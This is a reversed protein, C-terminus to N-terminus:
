TLIAKWTNVKYYGTIRDKWVLDPYYKKVDQAIVGKTRKSKIGLKNAIDNWEWSFLGIGSDLRKILKINDKLRSDSFIGASIAASGLTGIM